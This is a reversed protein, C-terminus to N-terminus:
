ATMATYKTDRGFWGCPDVTYKSCRGWLVWMSTNHIKYIEAMSCVPIQMTNQMSRGHWGCPNATYETYKGWAVWLFKSRIRYVEAIGGVPIQQTTRYVEGM